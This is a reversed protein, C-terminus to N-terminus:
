QSKTRVHALGVKGLMELYRPDDRVGDLDHDFAMGNLGSDREEYGKRLWEFGGDKNGLVFHVVAIGYPRLREPPFESELEKLLAKSEDKRGMSAYVYAKTTKGDPSGKTVEALTDAERLADEYMGKRTFCQALSLHAPYFTPDMEAVKRCQEIAQDLKGELYLLDGFNVNIILSLPDLELARTIEREGEQFRGQFWLLQAYWQHATSYNPNLEIARRIESQSERYEYELNHIAAGLVNHAEALNPDFELAKKAFEMAKQFSPVFEAQGNFGMVLHSDALGSYGLAFTPDLEISRSFYGIAKKLAELSRENWYYRGKLYLTYGETSETPRREIRRKESEVLQVKLERTVSEAIESQIEFIDEMKRDYNQAWLHGQSQSDVLQVTIRLRDAAKRVSGEVLSGASLERGIESLTKTANKYRMVSTRGLVTLDRLGSLSTILEETMGDALYVDNPDPSINAFPLVAVRKRDLRTAKPEESEEWPMLMKYVEVPSGVNKLPKYGLSALPLEFKNQVHDYVQRSLCVGGDEAIGEIRSAVNVADGSIDGRSEVVDGLHVGVRLHVRRDEPLSYNFERIARQIDNSCRVAELASPFEVLFADGMTKVERGGHRRLVPRNLRRQQDVLALSLTEKKQGLATYGVMDTYM